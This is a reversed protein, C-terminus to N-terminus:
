HTTQESTMASVKKGRYKLNVPQGKRIQHYCEPLNYALKLSVEHDKMSRNEYLFQSLRLSEDLLGTPLARGRHELLSELVRGAELYFARLQGNIVLQAIPYTSPLLWKETGTHPDILACGETEGQGYEEAKALMFQRILALFHVESPLPDECFALLLDRHRLGTLTQVLLLTLQLLRSYYLMQVMWALAQARKWDAHSLSQTAVVMEYEEQIGTVEKSAPTGPVHCPVIVTELGYQQRYAPSSMEANPLLHVNWIRLEDHQGESIVTDLVDVFSDFSEGPLGLLLDTYTPIGHAVFRRLLQRYVELSINERKIAKLAAPTLSQLSLAASVLLGADALIQHSAFAREPLNKTMQTAIRSPYGWKQRVAALQRSLDLDRPLLGYNADMCFIFRIQHQGFWEIEARLREMGFRRVKSAISSGWDCFACSFPCGRNSEWSVAWSLDPHAAMLPEFIGSLYPSPIRELDRIREARGQHHFTQDPELYSIGPIGTWDRDPWAELLRLFTEEGEGHCVLDVFPLNRLFTEPADPVQPGGFVTILEPNRAKLAQALRLNYNVNWTYVSFGVLEASALQAVAEAIPLRLFLPLLFRYREPEQAHAQAYTQLLGTAYPLYYLGSTPETIEVWGIIMIETGEKLDMM